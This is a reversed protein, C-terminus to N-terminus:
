ARREYDQFVMVLGSGDWRLSSTEIHGSRHRHMLHIVLREGAVLREAIDLQEEGSLASVYHGSHPGGMLRGYSALLFWAREGLLEQARARLKMHHRFALLSDTDTVTTPM